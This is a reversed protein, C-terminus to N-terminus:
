HSRTEHLNSQAGFLCEVESARAAVGAFSDRAFSTESGMSGPLLLAQHGAPCDAVDEVPVLGIGALDGLPCLATDVPLDRDELRARVEQAVERRDQDVHAGEQTRDRDHSAVVAPRVAARRASATELVLLAEWDTGLSGLQLFGHGEEWCECFVEGLLEVSALAQVGHGFTEEWEVFAGALM